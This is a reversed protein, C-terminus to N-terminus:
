TEHAQCGFEQGIGVLKQQAEDDLDSAQVKVVQWSWSVEFAKGDGRSVLLGPREDVQPFEAKIRDLFERVPLDILGEVEEGFDLEQAIAAPSNLLTPRQKWFMLAQTM